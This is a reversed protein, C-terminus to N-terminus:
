TKGLGDNHRRMNVGVFRIKDSCIRLGIMEIFGSKHM